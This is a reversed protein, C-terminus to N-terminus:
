RPFIAIQIPHLRSVDGSFLLPKLTARPILTTQALMSEEVSAQIPCTLNGDANVHFMFSSSNNCMLM